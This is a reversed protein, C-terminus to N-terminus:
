PEGKSFSIKFSFRHRQRSTLTRAGATVDTFLKSTNLQENFTIVLAGSEAEGVIEIGDGKSYTFSTLDVGAPQLQSIERLCELASVRRDMYRQIMQVQTRLRRVANAPEQWRTEAAKYAAVDARQWAVLGWGAGGLAVWAGLCAVGALVMQRRFRQAEEAGRWVVPTLDLLRPTGLSRSAVGSLASALVDLSRERVGGPFRTQLAASLAEIGSEQRSWLTLTAQRVKGREAEIGIILHALEQVLDAAMDPELAPPIEGLGSLSVLVGADHIIVSLAGDEVIVLTERGESELQGADVLTQWRGLLLADVRTIKTGKPACRKGLPNVVASRAVAALVRVGHSDQQLIEHSVVMQDLPFPSFKDIQLDVMSAIESAEAVPFDLVRMVVSHPPLALVIAGKPLPKDGAGPVASGDLSWRGDEVTTGARGRRVISWVVQGAPQETVAVTIDRSAM